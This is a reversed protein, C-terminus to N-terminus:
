GLGQAWSEFISPHRHKSSNQREEMMSMADQHKIEAKRCEEAKDYTEKKEAEKESPQQLQDRESTNLKRATM